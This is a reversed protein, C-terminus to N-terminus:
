NEFFQIGNKPALTFHSFHFCQFIYFQHIKLKDSQETTTARPLIIKNRSSKTQKTQTM